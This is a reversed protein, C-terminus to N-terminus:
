GRSVESFFGDALRADDNASVVANVREEALAMSLSVAESRLAMRAKATESRITREAAELLRESDREARELIGAREVQAEAEAAVKMDVLRQEFGQLRAELEAVREHAEKRLRNSEDIDRKVEVARDVMADRIKRGALLAIAVLLLTLNFAHLGLAVFDPGDGAALAPASLFALGLPLLSRVKM